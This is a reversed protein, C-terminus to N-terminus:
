PDRETEPTTAAIEGLADAIDAKIRHALKKLEGRLGGVGDKAVAAALDDSSALIRDVSQVIRGGAMALADALRDVRVLEGKEEALRLRAREAETWTKQRLAEDYSEALVDVRPTPAPAQAKSPDAFRNRLEDYQVHNVAAVRGLRDLEVQLGLERLRKVQQSIAPKSVGYRAALQAVSMMVARPPGANLDSDGSTFM